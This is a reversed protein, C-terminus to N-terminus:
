LTHKMIDFNLSTASFGVIVISLRSVAGGFVIIEFFILFDSKLCFSWAEEFFSFMAFFFFMELFSFM